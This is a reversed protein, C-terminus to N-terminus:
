LSATSALSSSKMSQYAQWEDKTLSFRLLKATLFLHKSRALLDKEEKTKALEATRSTELDALEQFLKTGDISDSLLQYQIFRAM